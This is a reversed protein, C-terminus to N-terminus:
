QSLLGLESVWSRAQRGITGCRRPRGTPSASRSSTPSEDEPESLTVTPVGQLGLSLINDRDSVASQLPAPDDKAVPPRSETLTIKVPSATQPTGLTRYSRYDSLEEDSSIPLACTQVGTM